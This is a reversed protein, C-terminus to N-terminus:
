EAAPLTFVGPATRVYLGKKAGTALKSGITQDPTPGKLGPCLPLVAAIIAKAAMPEGADTLVKVIAQPTSLGERAVKPTKAATQKKAAATAMAGGRGRGKGTSTKAPKKEPAVAGAGQKVVVANPTVAASAQAERHQRLQETKSPGSAVAAAMVKGEKQNNVEPAAAAAALKRAVGHLSAKPHARGTLRAIQENVISLAVGAPMPFTATTRTVEISPHGELLTERIAATQFGTLNSIKTTASM